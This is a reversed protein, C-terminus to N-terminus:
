PIGCINNKKFYIISGNQFHARTLKCNCPKNKSNIKNMCRKHVHFDCCNDLNGDDCCYLDDGKNEEQCSYKGCINCTCHAGSTLNDDCVMGKMYEPNIFELIKVNKGSHQHPSILVLEVCDGIQLDNLRSRPVNGYNGSYTEKWSRLKTSLEFYHEGGRRNTKHKLKSKWKGM